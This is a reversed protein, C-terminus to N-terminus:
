RFMRVMAECFPMMDERQLDEPLHMWLECAQEDHVANEAELREYKEEAQYWGEFWVAARHRPSYGVGQYRLYPNLDNPASGPSFAERGERRIRSDHSM